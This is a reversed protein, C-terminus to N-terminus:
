VIKKLIGARKEVLERQLNEDNIIELSTLKKGKHHIVPYNFGYEEGDFKFRHQHHVGEPPKGNGKAGGRTLAEIEARLEENVKYVLALEAQLAPVDPVPAITKKKGAM